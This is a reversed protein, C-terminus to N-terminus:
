CLLIRSSSSLYVVTGSYTSLLRLFAESFLLAFSVLRKIFDWELTNLHEPVIDAAEAWESNTARDWTDSDHLYKSALVLAPLYLDAPDSSEFFDQFCYKSLDIM